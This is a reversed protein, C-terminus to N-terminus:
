TADGFKLGIVLAASTSAASAAPLTNRGDVACTAVRVFDVRAVQEDAWGDRTVGSRDPPPPAV